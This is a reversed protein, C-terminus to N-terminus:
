MAGGSYDKRERLIRIHEVLPMDSSVLPDITPLSLEATVEERQVTVNIADVATRLRSQLDAITARFGEVTSVLERQLEPVSSQAVLRDFEDQAEAIATRIAEHTRQRLSADYFPAIAERAIDRLLAPRLTALADIETQDVGYRERWGSARKESEKLPTSPLAFESVQDVTLAPTLVQFCLDPYISESLARLKHGISVSMQYGAPDCDAFVFVIMERGDEAGTKAMTALMTNSIEGSPLYLDAQCSNALGGLVSGLSTKEGFFVLRYPQTPEFGMWRIQPREGLSASSPLDIHQGGYSAFMDSPVHEYLRIIPEANRADIIKRWDVYGLWRATNSADELFAWCDADNVYPSGNPLQAGGLSVIAYHVGRNHIAAGSRLLGCAEMHDRFWQGKTHGAPTDLRFPDNQPSLVTLDALSAKHIQKTERLLAGLSM